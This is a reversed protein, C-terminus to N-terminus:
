FFKLSTIITDIDSFYQEKGVYYTGIALSFGGDPSAIYVDSYSSTNDSGYTVKEATLTGYQVQERKIISTSSNEADKEKILNDISKESTFVLVMWDGYPTTPTPGDPALGIVYNKSSENPYAPTSVSWGMPFQLSFGYEDNQYTTFRSEATLEPTTASEPTSSNTNIADQTATNTATNTNLQNTEVAATNQNVTNTDITTTVSNGCGAFLTLGILGIIFSKGM